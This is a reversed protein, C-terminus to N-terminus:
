VNCGGGGTFITVNRGQFQGFVQDLHWIFAIFTVEISRVCKVSLCTSVFNYWNALEQITKIAYM